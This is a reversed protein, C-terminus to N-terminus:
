GTTDITVSHSTLTKLLAQILVFCIVFFINNILCPLLLIVHQAQPPQRAAAVQIISMSM